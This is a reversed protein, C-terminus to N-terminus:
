LRDQGPQHGGVPLRPVGHRRLHQVGCGARCSGRANIWSGLRKEANARNMRITIRSCMRDCANELAQEKQFVGKPGHLIGKYLKMQM